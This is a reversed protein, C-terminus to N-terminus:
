RANEPLANPGADHDRDRSPVPERRREVYGEILVYLVPVIFIAWRVSAVGNEKTPGSWFAM